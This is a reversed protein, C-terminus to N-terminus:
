PEEIPMAFGRSWDYDGFFMALAFFALNDPNIMGDISHLALNRALEYGYAKQDVEEDEYQNTAVNYVSRTTKLRNGDKDVAPRDQGIPM